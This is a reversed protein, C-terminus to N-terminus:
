LEIEATKVSPPQQNAKTMNVVLARDPQSWVGTLWVQYDKADAIALLENISEQDLADAEDLLLIRADAKAAMAVQASVVLRQAGSASDWPAGDITLEGADDLGARTIKAASLAQNVIHRLSERSACINSDAEKYAAQALRAKEQHEEVNKRAQEYHRSETQAAQLEVLQTRANNLRQNADHVSADYEAVKTRPLSSLEAALAARQQDLLAIQKQIADHRAALKTEATQTTVAQTLESELRAVAAHANAVETAVNKRPESPISLLLAKHTSEAQKQAVEHRQRDTLQATIRAIRADVDKKDIGAAACLMTARRQKDKARYLQTPDLALPNILGQLFTAPKKIEAPGDPTHEVVEIKYTEEGSRTTWWRLKITYRTKLADALTLTAEAADTGRRIPEPPAERQGALATRIVDLVSTKGSGNPGRLIILTEAKPSLEVCKLSKFDHATLEAIRM